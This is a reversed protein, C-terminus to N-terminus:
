EALMVSAVVCALLVVVASPVGVREIRSVAEGGIVEVPVQAADLVRSTVSDEIIRTISNRRATGMVIRAVNLRRAVRNIMEAKSGLEVHAAYPVGHRELLERAGKLLRAAIERHYADRDRRGIFRAVHQSFPTRVHVLHVELAPGKIHQAIVHRLARLANPSGDVPVLVRVPAAGGAAAQLSSEPLQALDVLHRAVRSRTKAHNALFGAGLVGLIVSAYALALLLPHSEVYPKVLPESVMMKVATWALVGGGIYIIAPFREVWKLILQSGWIVIPISILLGIVVLLFSGHAAGAVALVNDLGMIADAVIITKMAGWFTNASAVQHGGGEDNEALLKYAIWVLLAGGLLMLGPIKLLWVVVLTMATRVAIAGFTGWLVAKKRLHPPLNRAALAIVIANDGALVLDIIIIAILASFFEASLLEM